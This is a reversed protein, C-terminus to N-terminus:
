QRNQRDREEVQRKGRVKEELGMDALGGGVKLSSINGLGLGCVLSWQRRLRWHLCWYLIYFFLYVCLCM